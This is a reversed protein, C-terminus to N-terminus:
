RTKLYNWVFSLVIGVGAVVGAAFAIKDSLAEGKPQLAPDAYMCWSAVAIFAVAVILCFASQILALQWWPRGSSRASSTAPNDSDCARIYLTQRFLGVDFGCELCQEHQEEVNFEILARGGWKMSCQLTHLGPEVPIAITQGSSIVFIEKGDLTVLFSRFRAFVQSTRSLRISSQSGM